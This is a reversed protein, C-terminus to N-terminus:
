PAKVASSAAASNADAVRSALIQQAVKVSAESGFYFVVVISILNTFNPLLSGAVSGTDAVRDGFAKVGLASMVLLLYGVVLSATLGDRWEGRLLFGGFLAILPPVALSFM